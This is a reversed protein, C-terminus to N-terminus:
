ALTVSRRPRVSRARRRVMRREREMPIVGNCMASSPPEDPVLGALFNWTGQWAGLAVRRMMGFMSAEGRL